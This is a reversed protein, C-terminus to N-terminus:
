EQKFELPFLVAQRAVPEGAETLPAFQLNGVIKEALDALSEPSCFPLLDYARGEADISLQVDCRGILQSETKDSSTKRSPVESSGEGLLIPRSQPDGSFIYTADPHPGKSIALARAIPKAKDPDNTQEYLILLLEFIDTELTRDLPVNPEKLAGEAWHVATDFEDQREHLLALNYKTQRNTFAGQEMGQTLYSLAEADNGKHMHFNGLSVMSGARQTPSLINRDLAATLDAIAGDVDGSEFRVFAKLRISAAEEHCNLKRAQLKDLASLAKDYQEAFADTEAQLYLSGNRKTFATDTCGQAIAVSGLACFLAVLLTHRLPWLTLDFHAHM